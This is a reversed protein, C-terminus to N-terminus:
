RAKPHSFKAIALLERAYDLNSKSGVMIEKVARCRPSSGSAPEQCEELWVTGFGGSGLRAKRKWTETVVVKWERGLRGRRPFSHRVFDGQVVAELKSHIVLDPLDM